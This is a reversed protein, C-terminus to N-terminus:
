REGRCEASRCEFWDGGCNACCCAAPERVTDAAEDVNCEVCACFIRPEGTTVCREAFRWPRRANPVLAPKRTRYRWALVCWTLNGLTTGAGAYFSLWQGIAPYFICNWFGWLTYFVFVPAFVGRVAKHRWLQRVNAWILLAGGLEFAANIADPTV